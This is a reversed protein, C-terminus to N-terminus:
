QCATLILAMGTRWWTLSPEGNRCVYSFLRDPLLFTRLRQLCVSAVSLALQVQGPKQLCSRTTQVTEVLNEPTFPSFSWVMLHERIVVLVVLVHPVLTM